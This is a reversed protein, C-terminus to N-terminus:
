AVRRSMSVRPPPRPGGDPRPGDPQEAVVVRGWRGGNPERFSRESRCGASALGSGLMRRLCGHAMQRRQNRGCLRAPPRCFTHLSAAHWRSRCRRFQTSQRALSAAASFATRSRRAITLGTSSHGHPDAVGTESRTRHSATRSETPGCTAPIVCSITLSSSNPNRSATRACTSPIVRSDPPSPAPAARSPM